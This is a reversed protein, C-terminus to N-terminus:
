IKDGKENQLCALEDLVALLVTPLARVLSLTHGYLGHPIENGLKGGQERYYRKSWDEPRWGYALPDARIQSLRYANIAGPISQLRPQTSM